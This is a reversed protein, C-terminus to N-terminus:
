HISSVRISSFIMSLIGGFNIWLEGKWEEKYMCLTCMYERVCVCVCFVDKSNPQMLHQINTQLPIKLFIWMTEIIQLNYDRRQYAERKHHNPSLPFFLLSLVSNRAVYPFKTWWDDELSHATCFSDHLLQLHSRGTAKTSAVHPDLFSDIRSFISQCM